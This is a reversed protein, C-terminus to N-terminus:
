VRLTRCTANGPWRAGHLLKKRMARWCDSIPSTPSCTPSTVPPISAVVCWRVLLSHGLVQKGAETPANILGVRREIEDHFARVLTDGSDRTVAMRAPNGAHTPAAEEVTQRYARVVETIAAAESKDRTAALIEQVKAEPLGAESAARRVSLELREAKANRELQESDGSAPPAVPAPAPAAPPAETTITGPDGGAKTEDSM